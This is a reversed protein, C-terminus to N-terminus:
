TVGLIRVGPTSMILLQAVAACSTCAQLELARQKFANRGLEGEAAALAGHLEALREEFHGAEALLAAQEALLESYAQRASPPMSSLRRDLTSQITAIQGDVQMAYM